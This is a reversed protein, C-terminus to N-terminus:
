SCTLNDLFRLSLSNTNCSTLYHGVETVPIGTIHQRYGLISFVTVGAFVCTAADLTVVIMADRVVNNHFNNYSAFTIMAGFGVSLSYFMQTAADKWVTPEALKSFQLCIPKYLTVTYIIIFLIM